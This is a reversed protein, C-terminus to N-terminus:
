IYFKNELVYTEGFEEIEEKTPPPPPASDGKENKQHTVVRMSGVKVSFFFFIMKM